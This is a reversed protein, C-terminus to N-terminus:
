DMRCAEFEENPQVIAVYGYEYIFIREDRFQIMALPKLPPDGPYKLVYRNLMKFKPQPRWGGGHAYRENFQEAVKRPDNEDLFDPILGIHDPHLNPHLSYIEM